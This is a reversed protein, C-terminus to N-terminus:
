EEEDEDESPEDSSEEEDTGVTIYEGIGGGSTEKEKDKKSLAKFIKNRERLSNVEFEVTRMDPQLYLTVRFGKKLEQTEVMLVLQPEIMIDKTIKRLM